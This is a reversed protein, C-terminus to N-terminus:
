RVQMIRSQPNFHYVESDIYQLGINLSSAVVSPKVGPPWDTPAWEIYLTPIGMAIPHLMDSRMSDGIVLMEDLDVNHRDMLYGLIQPFFVVKRQDTIIEDFAETIGLTDLLRIAIRSQNDTVAVSSFLDHYKDLFEYIGDNFGPEVQASTVAMNIPKSTFELCESPSFGCELAVGRLMVHSDPLTTIREPDFVEAPLSSASVIDGNPKHV